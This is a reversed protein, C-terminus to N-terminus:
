ATRPAPHLPDISEPRAAVPERLPASAPAAPSTFRAPPAPKRFFPVRKMWLRLAQWHIRAVVGFTLMPMRALTAAAHWTTLPRLEGSISTLLCPGGDDGHDIRAVLRTASGAGASAAGAQGKSAAARQFRFRYRGRVPLFPSVHFAKDAALERGWAVENGALVYCHREGFTNNVEAVVARLTGDARECYWFSVPKFVYGLVRPYTQLWIEGDVDDIGQEALLHELWALADGGGTGHDRDHFSLWGWRNRALAPQTRGAGWTRMPLLVCFTPYRFSHFVPVLRTHLVSGVLLRAAPAPTDGDAPTLVRQSGRSSLSATM